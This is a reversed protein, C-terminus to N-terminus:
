ENPMTRNLFEISSTKAQKIFKVSELKGAIDASLQMSRQHYMAKAVELRKVQDRTLQLESLTQEILKTNSNMKGVLPDENLAEGISRRYMALTDSMRRVVLKENSRSGNDKKPLRQLLASFHESPPQQETLYLYAVYGCGLALTTGSLLKVM